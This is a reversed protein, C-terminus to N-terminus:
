WPLSTALTTATLLLRKKATNKKLTQYGKSSPDRLRHAEDVIMMDATPVEGKVAVNQLSKIKFPPPEGTHHKKIEKAYNEQLAAPVIIDANMNLADHAAISSLSKGSGLGHVAVLGPQDERMMKDVLRQQHPQLKTTVKALKEVERSFAAMTHRNM